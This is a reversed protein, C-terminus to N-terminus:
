RGTAQLRLFRSFWKLSQQAGCHNQTRLRLRMALTGCPRQWCIKSYLLVQGRRSPRLTPRDHRYTEASLKANPSEMKTLMTVTLRDRKPQPAARATIVIALNCISEDGGM